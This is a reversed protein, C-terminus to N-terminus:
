PQGQVPPAGVASEMTEQHSTNYKFTELITSFKILQFRGKQIGEPMELSINKINFLRDVGSLRELLILFQLFTSTGKLEYTKTVYFGQPNEAQATADLEPINLSQKEKSFYDYIEIDNIDSPLQKQVKEINKFIEKVRDESAELDKKFEKIDALKAKGETISAEIPPIQDSIQQLQITHEEYQNYIGNLAYLIIMFHLYPLFKNLVKM